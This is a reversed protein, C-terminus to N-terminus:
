CICDVGGVGLIKILNGKMGTEMVIYSYVRALGLTRTGGGKM